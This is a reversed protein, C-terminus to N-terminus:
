ALAWLISKEVEFFYFSMCEKISQSCGCCQTGNRQILTSSLSQSASEFRENVGGHIGLMPGPFTGLELYGEKIGPAGQSGIHLGSWSKENQKEGM